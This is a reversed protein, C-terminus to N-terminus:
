ANVFFNSQDLDIALSDEHGCNECKVKHAPAAWRLQNSEIHKTIAKMVASDVNDLWETIYARETVTVKGTDVSEIGAAFVDNRLSALEQYIRTMEAKKGEDDDKMAYVQSMQQQLQFNRVSFDTTQQYCLPKVIVTLEDLVLKNDYSCTNYHDILKSVELEYDSPTQCESCTNTINIIGGYTAIRIAALVIDIDLASLDWPDAISPCCSHIVTVTSEGSLLADPTKMLIEDMGTMGFVPIRTVDGTISGPKNYIGQSPLSIFIKPQRFYQQLPNNAM